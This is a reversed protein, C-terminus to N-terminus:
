GNVREAFQQFMLVQGVSTASLGVDDFYSKM